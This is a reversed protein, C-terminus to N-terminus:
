SINGTAPSLPTIPLQLSSAILSQPSPMVLAPPHLLSVAIGLGRYFCGVLGADGTAGM